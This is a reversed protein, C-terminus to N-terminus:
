TGTNVSSQLKSAVQDWPTIYDMALTTDFSPVCEHMAGCAKVCICIFHKNWLNNNAVGVWMIVNIGHLGVYIDVKFM